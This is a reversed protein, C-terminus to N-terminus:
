PHEGRALRENIEAIVEPVEAISDVVFHAGAHALEMRAKAVLSNVMETPLAALEELSKGVQNGTKALGITWASANLGEEIGPITDDVKVVAEPPYVGTQIMNELVMWPEPRGARVQTACVSCDPVYGQRAAERQILEMAAPFYGTTSGILAGQKRVAAVTELTGPILEAYGALCEMQVPQFDTFLAHIDAEDPPHGYLKGWQEAVEPQQCIARIHDRKHLGMPRRAQQTSIEVGYKRFTEIFAVAPALCGYDITTGAWDLIVLRVPGRYTRKFIFNM